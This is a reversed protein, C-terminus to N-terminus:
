VTLEEESLSLDDIVQLMRKVVPPAVIGLRGNFLEYSKNTEHRLLLKGRTWLSTFNQPKFVLNKDQRWKLSDDNIM